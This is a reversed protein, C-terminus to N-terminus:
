RAPADADGRRGPIHGEKELRERMAEYDFNEAQERLWTVLEEGRQYRYQVLEGLVEEVVNSNFGAAAGSLRALLERDP